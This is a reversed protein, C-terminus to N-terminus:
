QGGGAWPELHIFKRWLPSIRVQHHEEILSWDSHPKRELLGLEMLPLLVYGGLSALGRKQSAATVL